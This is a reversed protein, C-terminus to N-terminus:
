LLGVMAFLNSVSDGNRFFLYSVHLAGEENWETVIKAMGQSQAAKNSPDGLTSLRWIWPLKDADKKVKYQQGELWNGLM